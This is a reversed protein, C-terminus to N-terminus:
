EKDVKNPLSIKKFMRKLVWGKTTDERVKYWEANDEALVQLKEGPYITALVNNEDVQSPTSRLKAYNAGPKLKIEYLMPILSDIGSVTVPSQSPPQVNPLPLLVSPATKSEIMPNKVKKASGGWLGSLWFFVVTGAALLLGIALGFPYWSARQPPRTYVVQPYNPEPRKVQSEKDDEKPQKILEKETTSDWMGLCDNADPGHFTRWLKRQPNLVVAFHWDNSFLRRQTGMDTGSMFVDLSNPHTHYWGIIQNGSGTGRELESDVHDLMEKWVETSLELYAASGHASKGPVVDKVVGYINNRGSKKFVRGLLIGGQEVTNKSTQKGWEIHELLKQRAANEIQLIFNSGTRFDSLNEPIKISMGEPLEEPEYRPTMTNIKFKKKSINMPNTEREENIDFKRRAHSPPSSLDTENSDSTQPMSPFGTTTRNGSLLIRIVQELKEGLKRGVRLLLSGLQAGRPSNENM